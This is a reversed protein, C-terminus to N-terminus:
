MVTDFCNRSFSSAARFPCPCACGPAEASFTRSAASSRNSAAWAFRLPSTFRGCCLGREDFSGPWTGAATFRATQARSSPFHWNGRSEPPM